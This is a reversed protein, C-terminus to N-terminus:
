TWESRDTFDSRGTSDPTPRRARPYIPTTPIPRTLGDGEGVEGEEVTESLGYFVLHERSNDRQEGDSAQCNGRGSDFPLRAHLDDVVTVLLALDGQREVTRTALCKM